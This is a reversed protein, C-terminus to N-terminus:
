ECSLNSCCYVIQENASCLMIINQLVLWQKPNHVLVCQADVFWQRTELKVEVIVDDGFAVTCLTQIQLISEADVDLSSLSRASLVTAM